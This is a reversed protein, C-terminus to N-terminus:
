NESDGGDEQEGAEVKLVSGSSADVKVDQNAGGATPTVVVSYVAKGNEDELTTSVATGPVKALAAQTAQDTTIRAQAQLAAQNDVEAETSNAPESAEPGAAESEAAESGAVEPGEAAEPGDATEFAGNDTTAQSNTTASQTPPAIQGPTTAQAYASHNSISITGATYALGFMMVFATILGFLRFKTNYLNRM